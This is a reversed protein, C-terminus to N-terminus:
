NRSSIYFFDFDFIGLKTHLIQFHFSFFFFALIVRWLSSKFGPNELIGVGSKFKNFTILDFGSLSTLIEGSKRKYSIGISNLVRCDFQDWFHFWNLFKYFSDTHVLHSTHSSQASSLHNLLSIHRAPVNIWNANCTWIWYWGIIGPQSAWRDFDFSSGMKLVALCSTHHRTM